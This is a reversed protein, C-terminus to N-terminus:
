SGQHQQQQQQQQQQKMAAVLLASAHQADMGGPLQMHQGDSPNGASSGSGSLPGLSSNFAGSIGNLALVTPDIGSLAGAGGDLKAVGLAGPPGLSSGSPQIGTTVVSTTEPAGKDSVRTNANRLPVLPNNIDFDAPLSAPDVDTLMSPKLCSKEPIANEMLAYV